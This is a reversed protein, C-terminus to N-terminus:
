NPLYNHFNGLGDLNASYLALNLLLSEGFLQADALAQKAGHRKGNVYFFTLVKEYGDRNTPKRM